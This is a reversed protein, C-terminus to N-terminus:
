SFAGAFLGQRAPSSRNETIENRARDVLRTGVWLPGSRRPRDKGACQNRRELNILTESTMRGREGAAVLCNMVNTGAARRKAVYGFFPLPLLFLPGGAPRIIASLNLGPQKRCQSSRNSRFKSDNSAVQVGLSLTMGVFHSTVDAKAPRYDRSAQEILAFLFHDGCPNFCM